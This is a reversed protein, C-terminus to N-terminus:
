ETILRFEAVALAWLVCAATARVTASRPAGYMIALEGFVDGPGYAGVRAGDAWIEAAGAELVFMTGGADGQAVIAEGPAASRRRMRHM